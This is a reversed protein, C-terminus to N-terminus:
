IGHMISQYGAPPGSEPLVFGRLRLNTAYTTFAVHHSPLAMSKKKAWRNSAPDYEYVMGVPKWVPALGAVRVNQRGGIRGLDGRLSPFPALKVLKGSGPQPRRV